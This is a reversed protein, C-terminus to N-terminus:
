RKEPYDIKKARELASRPFVSCSAGRRCVAFAWASNGAEVAGGQGGARLTPLSM